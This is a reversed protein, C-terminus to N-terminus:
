KNNAPKINTVANKTRKKKRPRRAATDDELVLMCYRGDGAEHEKWYDTKYLCISCDADGSTATAIYILETGDYGEVQKLDALLDDTIDDYSKKEFEIVEGEKLFTKIYMVDQIPSGGNVDSEYVDDIDWNPNLNEAM